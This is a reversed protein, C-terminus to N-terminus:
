ELRVYIVLDGLVKDFRDACLCFALFDPLAQIGVFLHDLDDIVFQDAQHAARRRPKNKGFLYRIDHHDDPQLTRTLRGRSASL